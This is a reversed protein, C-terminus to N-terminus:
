ISSFDDGEKSIPKASFLQAGLLKGLEGPILLSRVKTLSAMGETLSDKSRLRM